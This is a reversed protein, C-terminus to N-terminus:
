SGTLQISHDAECQRCIIHKWGTARDKRLWFEDCGCPCRFFLDEPRWSRTDNAPKAPKAM